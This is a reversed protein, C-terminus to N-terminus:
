SGGGARQSAIWADDRALAEAISMLGAGTHRGRDSPPAMGRPAGRSRGSARSTAEQTTTSMAWDVVRESYCVSERLCALSREGRAQAELVDLLHQGRQRAGAAGVASIWGRVLRRVPGSSGADALTPEPLDAGVGVARLRQLRQLRDRQLEAALDAVPDPPPAAPAPPEWIESVSVSPSGSANGSDVMRSGNAFPESITEGAAPLVRAAPPDQELDQVPSPDFSMSVQLHRDQSTPVPIQEARVAAADGARFAVRRALDRGFTQEFADRTGPAVEAQNMALRMTELHAYKLQSNPLSSWRRYWGRIVNPNAPPRYFPAKPLRILRFTPDIEVMGAKRLVELSNAIETSSRRRAEALAAIGMLILGPPGQAAEPGTLLYNWLIQAADDLQVFKEDDWMRTDTSAFAM